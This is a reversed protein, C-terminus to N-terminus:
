KVEKAAALVRKAKRVEAEGFLRGKFVMTGTGAQRLLNVADTIQQETPGTNANM